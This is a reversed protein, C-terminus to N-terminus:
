VSCITPLTLHTYSVPAMSILNEELDYLNKLSGDKLEYLTWLDEHEHLAGTIKERLEEAQDLRMAGPYPYGEINRALRIRSTLLIQDKDM